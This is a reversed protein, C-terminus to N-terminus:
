LSGGRLVGGAVMQERLVAREARRANTVAAGVPKEEVLNFKLHLKLASMAGMSSAGCRGLWGRSRGGSRAVRHGAVPRALPPGPAGRGPQGAAGAALEAFVKPLLAPAVVAQAESFSGLSM